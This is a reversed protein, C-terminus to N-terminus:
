CSRAEFLLDTLNERKWSSFEQRRSARPSLWRQVALESVNSASLLDGYDPSAKNDRLVELANRALQCAFVERKLGHRLIGRDIDLLEFAARIARFKWNPGKGFRYDKAYSHKQMKLYQRIDDFLDGDVHFHGFGETFGLPKLYEIGGLKLRNYVPSRGLASTTTIMVLASRKKKGSIVGRSESYRKQFADRMETTRLLCAILKGGLIFSYPPIAGLVYADMVNVLRQCREDANWGVFRDRVGLNFVADGLAIIGMVKQISEDWVLFRMRRGYGQSVPVSWTLSAIRFLDCARTGSEVLELRPSIQSPTIEQGSAFSSLAGELRSELFGSAM